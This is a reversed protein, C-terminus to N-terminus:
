CRQQPIRPQQHLVDAYKSSCQGPQSSCEDSRASDVDISSVFGGSWVRIRRSILAVKLGRRSPWRSVTM